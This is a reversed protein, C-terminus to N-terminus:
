GRHVNLEHNDVGVGAKDFAVGRFALNLKM